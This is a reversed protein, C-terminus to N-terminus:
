RGYNFINDYVDDPNEVPPLDPDSDDYVPTNIGLVWSVDTNYLNGLSIINTQYQVKVTNM